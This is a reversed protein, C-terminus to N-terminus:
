HTTGYVQTGIAHITCGDFGCKDVKAHGHAGCSQCIEGSDINVVM